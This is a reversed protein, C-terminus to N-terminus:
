RGVCNSVEEGSASKRIERAELFETFSKGDGSNKDIIEKIVSGALKKADSERLRFEKISDIFKNAFPTKNNKLMELKAITNTDITGKIRYQGDGNDKKLGLKERYENQAWTEPKKSDGWDYKKYDENNVFYKILKDPASYENALEPYYSKIRQFFVEQNNKVYVGDFDNNSFYYNGKLGSRDMKVVCGDGIVVPIERDGIEMLGVNSLACDVFLFGKKALSSVLSKIHEKSVGCTKVKPLVEIKLDEGYNLYALPQLIEPEKYRVHPKALSDSPSSIHLIQGEGIDVAWSFGGKKIDDGVAINHTKLIELLKERFKRGSLNDELINGNGGKRDEIFARALSFVPMKELESDIVGLDYKEPLQSNNDPEKNFLRTFIKM